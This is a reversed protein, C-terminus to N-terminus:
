PSTDYPPMSGNLGIGLGPYIDQDKRYVAWLVQIYKEKHMEARESVSHGLLPMPMLRSISWSSRPRVTRSVIHHRVPAESMKRRKLTSHLNLVCRPRHHSSWTINSAHTLKVCM